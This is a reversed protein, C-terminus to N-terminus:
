FPPSIASIFNLLSRRVGACLSHLCIKWSISVVSGHQRQSSAMQELSRSYMNLHSKREHMTLLPGNFRYLVYYVLTALHPLTRWEAYPESYLSVFTVSACFHKRWGDADERGGTWEDMWGDLAQAHKALYAVSAFSRGNFNFRDVTPSHELPVSQKRNQEFVTCFLNRRAVVLLFHSFILLFVAWFHTRVYNMKSKESFSRACGICTNVVVAWHRKGNSGSDSDSDIGLWVVYYADNICSYDYIMAFAFLSHAQCQTITHTKTAM